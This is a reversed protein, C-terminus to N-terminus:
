STHPSAKLQGKQPIVGQDAHLTTTVVGDRRVVFVARSPEDTIVDHDCRPDIQGALMEAIAKRVGEVDQGLIREMYRLVAHDTVQIAAAKTQTKRLAENVDELQHSILKQSRVHGQSADRLDTRLRLLDFESLGEYPNM